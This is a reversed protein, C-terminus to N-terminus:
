TGAIVLTMKGMSLLSTGINRLVRKWMSLEMIWLFMRWPRVMPQRLVLTRLPRGAGQAKVALEAVGCAGRIAAARMGVAGSEDKVALEAVGCAGKIAAARMGVAMFEGKITLEAVGCAGKITAARM